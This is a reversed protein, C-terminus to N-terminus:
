ALRIAGFYFMCLSSSMGAASAAGAAAATTSDPERARLGLSVRVMGRVYGDEVIHNCDELVVYRYAEDDMLMETNEFCRNNPECIRCVPPCPEGCFGM